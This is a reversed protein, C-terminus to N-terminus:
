LDDFTFWSKPIKEWYGTDGGLNICVGTHLGIDTLDGETWGFGTIPTMALKHVWYWVQDM